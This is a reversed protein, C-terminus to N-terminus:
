FFNIKNIIRKEKLLKFEKLFFDITRDLCNSCTGTIYYRSICREGGLSISHSGGAEVPLALRSIYYDCLLVVAKL